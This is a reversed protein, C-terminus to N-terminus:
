LNNWSTWCLDTVSADQRRPFTGFNQWKMGSRRSSCDSSSNGSFMVTADQDVSWDSIGDRWAYRYAAGGQLEDAFDEGVENTTSGTWVTDHSGAVARMGGKMLRNWRTWIGDHKLMQCTYNGWLSLGHSEDGYRSNTTLHLQGNDWMAAAATDVFAGGHTHTYLMHVTEVGNTAQDHSDEFAPKAGQMNWYFVKTDTDDLENNFGACNNWVQQGLNTQWNNQFDAQCYTGFRAGIAPQEIAAVDEEFGTACASGLLGAIGVSLLARRM